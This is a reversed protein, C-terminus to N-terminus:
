MAKTVADTRAMTSNVPTARDLAIYSSSVSSGEHSGAHNPDGTYTFVAAPLLESPEEVVLKGTDVSPVCSRSSSEWCGLRRIRGVCVLNFGRFSSFLTWLWCRGKYRKRIQLAQPRTSSTM